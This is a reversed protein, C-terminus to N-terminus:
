LTTKVVLTHQCLTSNNSMGPITRLTECMRPWTSEGRIFISWIMYAFNSKKQCLDLLKAIHGFLSKLILDAQSWFYTNKGEEGQGKM